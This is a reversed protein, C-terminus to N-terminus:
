VNAENTFKYIVNRPSASCKVHYKKDCEWKALVAISHGSFTQFTEIIYTVIERLCKESVFITINLFVTKNNATKTKLYMDISKSDLNYKYTKGLIFYLGSKGMFNGDFCINREDLFIDGVRCKDKYVTYISNSICYNFLQKPTRIYQRCTHTTIDNEIKPFHMRNSLTSHSHHEFIEDIDSIILNDNDVYLHNEGEYPCNRIHFTSKKRGFHKHRVASNIARLTYQADCSCNPCKFTDSLDTVNDANIPHQLKVSFVEFM